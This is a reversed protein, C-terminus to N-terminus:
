GVMMIRDSAITDAYVRGQVRTRVRDQEGQNNGYLTCLDVYSSANNIWPQAKDTQIIEHIVVTAFSFFLRNLGAKHEAFGTRKLLQDFVLEPEPLFPSKPTVPPVTRGYPTGSKGLDPVWPNNNSGDATRFRLKPDVTTLPPHPLDKWLM